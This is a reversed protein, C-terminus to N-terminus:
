GHKMQRVTKKASIEPWSLAKMALLANPTSIKALKATKQAYLADSGMSFDIMTANLAVCGTKLSSTIIAAQAYVMPVDQASLQAITVNGLQIMTSIDLLVCVWVSDQWCIALAIVNKAIKNLEVMANLAPPRIAIKAHGHARIEMDLVVVHAKVRIEM